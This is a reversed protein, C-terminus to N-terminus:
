NHMIDNIEHLEDYIYPGYEEFVPSSGNYIVEEANTCNYFYKKNYLDMQRKGPVTYYTDDSRTRGYWDMINITKMNRQLNKILASDVFM